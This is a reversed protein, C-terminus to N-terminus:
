SFHPILCNHISCVQAFIVILFIVIAVSFGIRL